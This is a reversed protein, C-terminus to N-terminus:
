TERQRPSEREKALLASLQAETPLTAAVVCAGKAFGLKLYLAETKSLRFTISEVLKDGTQPRRRMPETERALAGLWGADFDRPMLEFAGTDRLLQRVVQGLSQSRLGALEVLKAKYEKTTRFTKRVDLKPPAPRQGRALEEIDSVSKILSPFKTRFQGYLEVDAKTLRGPLPAADAEWTDLKAQLPKGCLACSRSRRRSGTSSSRSRRKSPRSATSSTADM